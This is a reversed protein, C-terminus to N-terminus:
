EGLGAYIWKKHSDIKKAVIMLIACNSANGKRLEIGGLVDGSGSFEAIAEERTAGDAVEAIGGNGQSGNNNIRITKGVANSPSEFRRQSLAFSIVAVASAGARDDEPGILRGGTPPTGLGLFYEGSVYETDVREAHGQFSFTLNGAGQYGFVSSFVSDSKRFLEFAPYSFFGGIFGGKPDNYSNNHLNIGHFERKPTRWSLIM